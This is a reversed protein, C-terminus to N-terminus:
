SGHGALRRHPLLLAKAEDIWFDAVQSARPTIEGVTGIDLRRLYDHVVQIEVAMALDPFAAIFAATTTAMGGTYVVKLSAYEVVDPTGYILPVKLRLADTRGKTPDYYDTTELATDSAFSQDPDYHASTFTTVPFARLSWTTQGAEVDLYETQAAALAVRDLFAEAAASTATIMQAILADESVGTSNRTGSEGPKIRSAVRATTTFDLAV